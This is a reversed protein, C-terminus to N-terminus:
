SEKLESHLWAKAVAWERKVTRAGIGLVSSIEEVTLGAFMRLEVVQSKRPDVAALRDLADGLAELSLDRKLLVTASEDLASPSRGGGRKDAKKKRAYDVLIRRMTTAASAFFQDRNHWGFSRQGAFRLYVEHVLATPQLTHNPRESELHIIALRRLEDYVMPLLHHANHADTRFGGSIEELPRNM